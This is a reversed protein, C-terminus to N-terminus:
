PRCTVASSTARTWIESRGFMKIGVYGRLKLKNGQSTMSGSYTKGSKPDYLTGGDAHSADRLHFNSGIQLGCLARTRLASNPNHGDVQTPAQKSIGVLRACVGGSCREVQITSGTPDTWRGLIGDEAAAATCCLTAFIAPALFIRKMSKVMKYLNM